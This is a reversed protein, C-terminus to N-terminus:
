HEQLNDHLSKRRLIGESHSQHSEHLSLHHRQPRMVEEEKEYSMIPEEEFSLHKKVSDLTGPKDESSTTVFVTLTSWDSSVFVTLTSRDSTVFVTLTSRDSTVFV